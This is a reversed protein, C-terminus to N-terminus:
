GGMQIVNDLARLVVLQYKKHIYYLLCSVFAISSSVETVPLLFGHYVGKSKDFPPRLEITLPVLCKDEPSGSLSRLLLRCSSFITYQVTSVVSRDGVHVYSM